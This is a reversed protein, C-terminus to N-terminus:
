IAACSAYATFNDNLDYTVGAYPVLKGTETSDDEGRLKYNAM